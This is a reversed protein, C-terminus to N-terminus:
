YTQASFNIIKSKGILFREADLVCVDAKSQTLKVDIM